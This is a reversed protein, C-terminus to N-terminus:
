APENQTLIVDDVYVYGNKGAAGQIWVDTKLHPGDSNAFDYSGYDALDYEAENVILRVSAGAVIDAVLKFTHFGAYLYTLNLGSAFPTWVGLANKVNLVGGAVVYKVDYQHEVVGDLYALWFSFLEVDPGPRWSCELGYRGAVPLPYTRSIKAQRAGDSGAVLQCSYGSSRYREAVIEAAAGTGYLGRDWGGLGHEFTELCIVNGERNHTDPSGLRAALEAMDALGYVVEDAGINSWDRQGHAM